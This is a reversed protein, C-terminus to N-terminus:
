LTRWRFRCLPLTSSRRPLRAMVAETNATRSATQDIGAPDDVGGVPGTGDVAGPTDAREIM